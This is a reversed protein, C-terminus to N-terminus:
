DELMDIDTVQGPQKFRKSTLSLNAPL